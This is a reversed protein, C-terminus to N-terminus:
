MGLICLGFAVFTPGVGLECTGGEDCIDRTGTMAGTTIQKLVYLCAFLFCLSVSLFLILLNLLNAEVRLNMKVKFEKSESWM